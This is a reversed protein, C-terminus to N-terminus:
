KKLFIQFDICLDYVKNRPSQATNMKRRWRWYIVAIYQTYTM